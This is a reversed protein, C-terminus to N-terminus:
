RRPPRPRPSRERRDSRDNREGRQRRDTSDRRERGEDLRVMARRGRIAVGTLKEVVTAAVPAAVEITSHRERVEVRGIESRSIGAENTMAGVLDGAAVGDMEGVNVFLKTMAASGSTEAPRKVREAELLRLAAAAIEAGDYDALLPELALLERAYQGAELAQRLEDRLAAEQTRAREAAAPLQFPVVAGGAFRRLAGVQRSTVLTIVRATGASRIVRRLETESSPLEYLIVLAAAADPADVVRVDTADDGYGLVRLQARVAGRSAEQPVVIAATPPDIADLVRRVTALRGTESTTVFSLAVPPEPESPQMRRARWAYREVLAEAEATMESAFVYRAADKPLDAMLTELARASVGDLGEVWALAIGRLGAPKLVASQLLELLVRPPGAVIAPFSGRLARTARRGDTAALVRTTPPVTGALRSVIGEAAESDNTVILLYTVDAAGEGRAVLPAIVSAAAAWDEPMVHLQNQGRTVGSAIPNNREDEM